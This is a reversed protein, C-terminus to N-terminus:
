DLKIVGVCWRKIKWVSAIFDGECNISRAYQKAANVDRFETAIGMDKTFINTDHYWIKDKPSLGYENDKNVCEFRIIYSPSVGNM